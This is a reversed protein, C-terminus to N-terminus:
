LWILPCPCPASYRCFLQQVEGRIERMKDLAQEMKDLAEARFYDTTFYNYQNENSKFESEYDYYDSVLNNQRREIFSIRENMEELVKRNSKIEMQIQLM